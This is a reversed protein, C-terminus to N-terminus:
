TAKVRGNPLLALEVDLPMDSPFVYTVTYCPTQPELIPRGEYELWAHGALEDAEDKRVGFVIRTEVGQLALFHHLVAARKWCVPKFAFLNIALLADIAAALDNQADERNQPQLRTPTSIIGLAQPLSYLRVVLSLLSVWSAIRLILLARRPRVFALGLARPM